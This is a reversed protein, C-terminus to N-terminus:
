AFEIDKTEPGHYAAGLILLAGAGLLVSGTYNMPMFSSLGTQYFAYFSPAIVAISYALGYGSGRISTPFRENIYAPLVAWPSIVLVIVLTTTLATLAASDHGYRVLLVYAPTAFLAMATAAWLLFRRRGIRQSFVAGCVDVIAVVVYALVLLLTSSQHSLGIDDSSLLTPLVAAVPQMSLWFGSMLFFVQLFAGAHQRSLLTKIPSRQGGTSRTFVDSEDVSRRYYFVLGFAILSGIVFPIRWGWQAYASDAGHSPMALLLVLTILSVAAYALPFGTNIIGSYLGRKYRPAAEMALPNASTYEGGLFIGGVLRLTIFLVVSFTGLQAYGPLAALLLTAVGAGGVATVTARKRGLTDAIHGFLAAGLPRGILTATFIMGGAIATGTSGLDSALFYGMAPALAVTPLYIDFLDVFFGLWAGLMAKRARPSVGKDPAIADASSDALTLAHPTHNMSMVVKRDNM